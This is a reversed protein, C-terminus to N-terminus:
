ASGPHEPDDGPPGKPARFAKIFLAAGALFEGLDAAGPLPHRFVHWALDILHQLASPDTLTM